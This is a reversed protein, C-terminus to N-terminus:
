PQQNVLESWQQYAQWSASTTDPDGVSVKIYAEAAECRKQWYIMEEIISVVTEEKTKIPDNM